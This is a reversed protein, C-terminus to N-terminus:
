SRLLLYCVPLALGAVASTALVVEMAFRVGHNARQALPIRSAPGGLRRGAPEGHFRVEFFWVAAYLVNAILLGMPALQALQRLPAAHGTMAYALGEAGITGFAVFLLVLANYGFRRREWWIVAQWRSRPGPPVARM